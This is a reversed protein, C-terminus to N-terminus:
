PVAYLTALLSVALFPCSASRTTSYCGSRAHEPSSIAFSRNKIKVSVFFYCGSGGAKGQDKSHFKWFRIGLGSQHENGDLGQM